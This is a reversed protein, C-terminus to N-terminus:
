PLVHLARLIYGWTLAAAVWLIAALFVLSRTRM